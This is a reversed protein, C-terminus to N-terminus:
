TSAPWKSEELIRDLQDRLESAEQLSMSFQSTWATGRNARHSVYADTKLVVRKDDIRISAQVTM